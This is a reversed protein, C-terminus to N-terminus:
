HPAGQPISPLPPPRQQATLGSGGGAAAAGAGGARNYMLKRNEAIGKAFNNVMNWYANQIMWVEKIWSTANKDAGRISSFDYKSMRELHHALARMPRGVLALTLPVTLAMFVVAAGVAAILMYTNNRVLGAQLDDRTADIAGTYDDEKVGAVIVLTITGGSETGVIKTVYRFLLGGEHFTENTALDTLDGSTSNIISAAVKCDDNELESTYKLRTSQADDETYTIAITENEVSSAFLVGESSFVLLFANSSLTKKIDILQSKLDIFTIDSSLVGVLGSANYVAMSATIGVNKDTDVFVYPPTWVPVTIGIQTALQYWPRSKTVISG